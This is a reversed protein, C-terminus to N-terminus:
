ESLDFSIGVPYHDSYDLTLREYYRSDIQPAAFIHDIKLPFTSELYTRRWGKGRLFSADNLQRNIQRYAYSAPTDNFDGALLVPFPSDVILANLAKIEIARHKFASRLKRFTRLLKRVTSRQITEDVSPQLLERENTLMISRLHVNILRITQEPFAADAYVAFVEGDSSLKGGHTLPYTSFIVNTNSHEKPFYHPYQKYVPDDSKIKGFHFEQFFMLDPSQILLDSLVQNRKIPADAARPMYFGEVNYSILSYEGNNRNAKLPLSYHRLMIPSGLVLFFLLIWFWKRNKLNFVTNLFHIGYVIPFGLGTFAFIYCIGPNIFGATLSMLYIIFVSASATFFILRWKKKLRM